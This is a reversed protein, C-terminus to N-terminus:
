TTAHSPSGAPVGGFRRQRTRYEAMAAALDDSTFDPWLRPSFVLEAYASEWLLFDSLRREGGPRVFLDVDPSPGAPSEDAGLGRAFAERSALDAPALRRAALLIADRASYDVAIRLRLASGRRTAEEARELTRVLGRPLRDRRGIGTVRIGREGCAGAESRLFSTLLGLIGRVEIPPRRWNDSSMAFLTLTGIGLDLAATVIRRAAQAGARHGFARPLGRAEAWRGSGDMVVAVHLPADAV